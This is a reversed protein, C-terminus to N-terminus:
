QIVFSLMSTPTAMQRLETSMKEQTSSSFLKGTRISVRSQALSAESFTISTAATVLPATTAARYASTPALV